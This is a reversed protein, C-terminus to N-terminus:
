VHTLHAQLLAEHMDDNFKATHAEVLATLIAVKRTLDDLRDSVSLPAAENMAAEAADLHAQTIGPPHAGAAQAMPLPKVLAVQKSDSM